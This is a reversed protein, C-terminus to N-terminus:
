KIEEKLNKFLEFIITKLKEDRRSGESLFYYDRISKADLLCILVRQKTTLNNIFLEYDASEIKIINDKLENLDKLHNTCVIDLNKIFKKRLDSIESYKEKKAPSTFTSSSKKEKKRKKEEMEIKRLNMLIRDLVYKQHETVRRQYNEKGLNKRGAGPRCGGRSMVLNGGIM